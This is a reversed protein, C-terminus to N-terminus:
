ERDANAIRKVRGAREEGIAKQFSDPPAFFAGAYCINECKDSIQKTASTNGAIGLGEIAIPGGSSGASNTRHTEPNLQGEAYPKFFMMWEHAGLLSLRPLEKDSFVKSINTPLPMAFSFHVKPKKDIGWSFAAIVKGSISYRNAEPNTKPLKEIDRVGYKGWEERPVYRVAIDTYAPRYFDKEQKTGAVCHFATASFVENNDQLLFKNCLETKEGREIQMPSTADRLKDAEAFYKELEPHKEREGYALTLRASVSNTLKNITSLREESLRKNSLDLTFPGNNHL